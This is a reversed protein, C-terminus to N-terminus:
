HACSFILNLFDILEIEDGKQARGYTVEMTYTM